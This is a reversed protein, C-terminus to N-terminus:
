SAAAGPRAPLQSLFSGALQGVAPASEGLSEDAMLKALTRENLSVPQLCQGDPLPAAARCTMRGATARDRGEPGPSGARSAGHRLMVAFVWRQGVGGGSGVGAGGPSAAKRLCATIWVM